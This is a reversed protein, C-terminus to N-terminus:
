NNKDLLYNSIVISKLINEEKDDTESNSLLNDNSRLNWLEEGM